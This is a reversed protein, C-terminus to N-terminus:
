KCNTKCVYDEDTALCRLSGTPPFDCISNDCWGNGCLGKAGVDSGSAPIGGLSQLVDNLTSKNATRRLGGVWFSVLEGNRFIMSDYTKTRDSPSVDQLLSSLEVLRPRGGKSEASASAAPNAPGTLRDLIATIKDERFSKRLPALYASVVRGNVLRLHGMFEAREGEPVDKLLKEIKVLRSDSDESRAADLDQRAIARGAVDTPSSEPNSKIAGSPAAYLEDFSVAKKAAPKPEEASAWSPLAFYLMGALVVSAKTM